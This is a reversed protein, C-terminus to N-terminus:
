FTAFTAMNPLAGGPRHDWMVIGLSDNSFNKTASMITYIISKVLNLLIAM